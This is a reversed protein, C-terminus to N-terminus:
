NTWRRQQNLFQHTQACIFIVLMRRLQSYIFLTIRIFMRKTSTYYYIRPWSIQMYVCRRSNMNYEFTSVVRCLFSMHHQDILMTLKMMPKVKFLRPTLSFSFSLSVNFHLHLLHFHLHPINETIYVVVFANSISKRRTFPFTQNLNFTKERKEQPINNLSFNSVNQIPIYLFNFYLFNFNSKILTHRIPNEARVMMLMMM